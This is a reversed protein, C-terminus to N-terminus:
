KTVFYKSTAMVYTWGTAQLAEDAPVERMVGISHTVGNPYVLSCPQRTDGPVHMVCEQADVYGSRKVFNDYDIQDMMYSPELIGEWCGICHVVPGNIRHMARITDIYRLFKSVTHTDTNNDIAFIVKNLHPM